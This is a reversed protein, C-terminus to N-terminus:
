WEKGGGQSPLSLILLGAQQEKWKPTLSGEPFTNEGM